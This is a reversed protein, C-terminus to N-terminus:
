RRQDIRAGPEIDAAREVPRQQGVVSGGATDSNRVLDLNDPVGPLATLTELAFSGSKSGGTGVADPYSVVLTLSATATGDPNGDVTIDYPGKTWFTGGNPVGSGFEANAGSVGFGTGNVSATVSANAIEYRTTSNGRNVAKLYCRVVHDNDDVDNSIEDAQLYIDVTPTSIGQVLRNTAM